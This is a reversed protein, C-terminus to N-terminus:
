ICTMSMCALASSGGNGRPIWLPRLAPLIGGIDAEVRRRVLHHYLVHRSSALALTLTNRTDKLGDLTADDATEFPYGELKVIQLLEGNKTALTEQDVHRTYPIFDAVDIEKAAIKGHQTLRLALADAPM